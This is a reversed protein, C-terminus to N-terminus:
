RTIPLHRNKGGSRDVHLSVQQSAVEDARQMVAESLQMFAQAIASAPSAQVVPVGADGWQRVTPDIPLQALLPAQALEAVKKGGGEGFLTHRTECNGCVFYSENEVVGLIPIGVKHAMSVSKYVDMVAVDQPTTVVVAGRTQLNQSLTLAVDGTGPPMDLLLFDLEGWNVDKVFQMLAAHLMPGRWVVAAKEDDLLFGLSMLKVGFRELPEIRQGEARPRGHIGFMTPVSPGYMDADLLGVRHGGRKLALALNSCVTSKGVGGKGSMVLIVHKVGPLPNSAPPPASPATPSAM